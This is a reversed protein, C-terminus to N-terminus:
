HTLFIALIGCLGKFGLTELYSKLLTERGGGEKEPGIMRRSSFTGHRKMSDVHQLGLQIERKMEWQAM